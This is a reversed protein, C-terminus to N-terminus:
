ASVKLRESADQRYHEVYPSRRGKGSTTMLVSDHQVLTCNVVALILSTSITSTMEIKVTHLMGPAREDSSGRNKLVHLVKM